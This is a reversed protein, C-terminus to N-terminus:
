GHRRTQRKVRADPEAATESYAVPVHPVSGQPQVHSPHAPLSKQARELYKNRVWKSADSVVRELPGQSMFRLGVYAVLLVVALQVMFALQPQGELLGSALLLLHLVYLTLTMKGLMALPRLVAAGAKGILLVAGLFALSTGITNILALPMTSYPTLSAFWWWSDTPLSPDPGWILIDTVTEEPNSSWESASDVLRERGGFPGMLLASLVASVVALGVGAVLIRIQVMRAALDLRGIALGVCIYAMWPLAPYTGSLLVQGLVDGPAAALTSFNPEVGQTDALSDRTAQMLVPAAAAIAAALILLTRVGQRLLPLSLLFMVGYYVLIVQASIVLYGLALGIVTILVARVAIGSRMATMRYGQPPYRGGSMFALSVGALLAFLAAGRGAFLLWTLTPEFEENWGPLVHIAMMAVLAAGRAADVGTVRQRGAVGQAVGNVDERNSM